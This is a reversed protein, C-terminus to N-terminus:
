SELLLGGNMGNQGRRLLPVHVFFEPDSSGMMYKAAHEHEVFYADVLFKSMDM